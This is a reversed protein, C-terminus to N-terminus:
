LFLLVKQFHFLHTISDVLHYSSDIEKGNLSILRSGFKGLYRLKVKDGFNVEKSTSISVTTRIGNKLKVVYDLSPVYNENQYESYETIEGTQIDNYDTFNFYSTQISGCNLVLTLILYIILQLLNPLRNGTFIIRM